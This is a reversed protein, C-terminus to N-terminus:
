GPAMGATPASVIEEVTMEDDALLPLWEPAMEALRQAPATEEYL